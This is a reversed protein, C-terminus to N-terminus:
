IYMFSRSKKKMKTVSDLKERFDTCLKEEPWVMTAKPIKTGQGPVSGPGCCHFGPTRVVPGGPFEM